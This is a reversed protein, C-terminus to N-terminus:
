SLGVVQHAIAARLGFALMTEEATLKGDAIRACLETAHMETIAIQSATMLGSSKPVQTVDLQGKYSALDAASLLSQPPLKAMVEDRYSQALQEGNLIPNPM